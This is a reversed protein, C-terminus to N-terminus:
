LTHDLGPMSRESGSRLAMISIRSVSPLVGLILSSGGAMLGQRRESRWQVDGLSEADLNAAAEYLWGSFCRDLRFKSASSLVRPIDAVREPGWRTAVRRRVVSGEEAFRLSRQLEENMASSRGVLYSMTLPQEGIVPRNVTGVVLMGGIPPQAGPPQLNMSPQAGPPQLNMGSGHKVVDREPKTGGEPVLGRDLPTKELALSLVAPVRRTAVDRRGSRGEGAAIMTRKNQFSEQGGSSFRAVPDALRAFVRVAHVDLQMLRSGLVVTSELSGGAVIMATQSAPVVKQRTPGFRMAKAGHM